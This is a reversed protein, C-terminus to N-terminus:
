STQGDSGAELVLYRWEIWRQRPRDAEPLGRLADIVPVIEAAWVDDALDWCWSWARSELLGAASAPSQTFTRRPMHGDHLLALGRARALEIIEAGTPQRIPRFRASLGGDIAALEDDSERNGDIGSILLRGRPRLLGAAAGVAGALDLVLHLVHVAVVAAVAGPRVPPALVDGQVVGVPRRRESTLAAAVVGTGVGLEVVPGSPLWRDFAAATHWGRAVGGRTADYRDAIRDFPLSSPM